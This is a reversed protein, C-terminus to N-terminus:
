GEALARGTGELAQQIALVVEATKFPKFVLPVDPPRDALADADAYGTILVCPWSPRMTRAFRIVDLGSMLPMAFDSVIVDFKQTDQEIMALAEAGGAACAVAYGEEALQMQTLNRLSASDDVLLIRAPYPKRDIRAPSSGNSPQPPAAKSRPLWLEVTTGKGVASDIRLTGGSQTAFGYATSLGLGTGKGVDKTTFFPELVQPLLDAEIGVGTDGVSIVVYQGLPLNPIGAPRSRNMLRITITGGSPMADRANIVLNMVALELQAADAFAPWLGDEAEWQLQVMGGLLPPLMAALSRSVETLDVVRPSLPQRRSFALMRNVLQKGQEAAHRTMELVERAKPNLEARREILSLGSLVSALLNNFDHAIGGTLKGVADMKQAQLLQDELHRYETIDRVTGAVSGDALVVAQDLFYRYKGDAHQWRYAQSRAGDQFGEALRLAHEPHVRGAWFDGDTMFSEGPYGTIAEVDGAVFRPSRKGSAPDEVYVALPLANLILAQRAESERLKVMAEARAQEAEFRERLLRQEQAAKREIERTKEFLSVFVAVKSRLITPDFPKFVYDVAGSDYGRLLHADEKNIATLFIIPTGRSQERTRILRAAEYGDMGPMLVDLVIVAFEERLLFRLAEEGSGASAVECIDELVERLALLNRPDDDVVLVKARQELAAEDPADAPIPASSPLGSASRGKLRTSM